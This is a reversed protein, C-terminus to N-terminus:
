VEQHLPAGSKKDLPAGIFFNIVRAMARIAGARAVAASSLALRLSACTAAITTAALWISISAPLSASDFDGLGSTLANAWRIIASCVSTLLCAVSRAVLSLIVGSSFVILLAKFDSALLFM